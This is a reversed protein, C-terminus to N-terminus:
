FHFKWFSIIERIHGLTFRAKGDHQQQQQQQQKWSAVTADFVHRDECQQRLIPDNRLVDNYFQLVIQDKENPQHKKKNNQRRRRTM